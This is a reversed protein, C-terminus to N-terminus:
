RTAERQKVSEEMLVRAVTMERIFRERGTAGAFQQEHQTRWFRDGDAKQYVMWYRPEQGPTGKRGYVVVRVRNGDADYGTVEELQEATLSVQSKNRTYPM